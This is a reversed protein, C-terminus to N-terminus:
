NVSVEETKASDSEAMMDDGAIAEDPNVMEMETSNASENIMTAETKHDIMEMSKKESKCASLVFVMLGLILILFINIKKM